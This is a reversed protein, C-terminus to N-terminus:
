FVGDMREQVFTNFCVMWERKSLHTLVYWGGERTHTHHFMGDVKEQTLTIFCVMWGRKHSHSSFM